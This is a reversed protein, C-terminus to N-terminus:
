DLLDILASGGERLAHHPPARHLYSALAAEGDSPHHTLDSTPGRATVRLVASVLPAKFHFTALAVSTAEESEPFQLVWGGGLLTATAGAPLGSLALSPDGAPVSPPAAAEILAPLLADAAVTGLDAAPNGGEPVRETRALERVRQSRAEAVGEPGRVSGLGPDTGVPTVSLYLDDM